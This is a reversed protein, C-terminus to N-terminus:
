QQRKYRNDQSRDRDVREKPAQGVARHTFQQLRHRAGFATRELDRNRRRRLVLEPAQRRAEVPHDFADAFQGTLALQPGLPEFRPVSAPPMACSRLLMREGSESEVKKNREFTESGLACSVISVISSTISRPLWSTLCTRENALPMSSSRTWTSRLCTSRSTILMKFSVSGFDILILYAAASDAPAASTLGVCNLWTSIFRQTLARSAM